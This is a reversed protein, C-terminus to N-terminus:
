EHCRNNLDLLEFHFLEQENAESRAQLDMASKAPNAALPPGKEVLGASLGM